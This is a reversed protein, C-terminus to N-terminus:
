LEDSYIIYIFALELRVGLKVRGREYWEEKVPLLWVEAIRWRTVWKGLEGASLRDETIYVVGKDLVEMVKLKLPWMEKRRVAWLCSSQLREMARCAVHTAVRLGPGAALTIAIPPHHIGHLPKRRRDTWPASESQELASSVPRRKKWVYAPIKVSGELPQVYRKWNHDM